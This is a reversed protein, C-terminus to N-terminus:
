WVGDLGSGEQTPPRASLWDKLKQDMSSFWLQLSEEIRKLYLKQRIELQCLRMKFFHLSVRKKISSPSGPIIGHKTIYKDDVDSFFGVDIHDFTTGFSNPRGLSHALGLEMSLTVWYLRRRMDIDTVSLAQGDSSHAITDEETFGLEQCLKTALGVIWYAATRTPTLMSYQAILAFCQLTGLNMPKIAHDLYPLAALYYSDALGAYQSDLKQMSVSIVMRLTFNKYADTSGNYVEEM